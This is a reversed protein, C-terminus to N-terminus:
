LCGNEINQEDTHTLSDVLCWGSHAPGCPWLSLLFFLSLPSPEFHGDAVLLETSSTHHIRHNNNNRGARAEQFKVVSCCSLTRTVGGRRQAREERKENTCINKVQGVTM